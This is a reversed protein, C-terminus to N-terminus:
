SVTFRTFLNFNSFPRDYYQGPAMDGAIYEGPTLRYYWFVSAGKSVMGGLYAGGQVFCDKTPPAMGRTFCINDADLDAQTVGPALKVIELNNLYSGIGLLWGARPLTAPMTLGMPGKGFRVVGAATPHIQAPPTGVVTLVKIRSLHTPVNHSAEYLFYTGANFGTAFSGVAGRTTSAGGVWTVSKVFAAYAAPAASNSATNWRTGADLFQRPTYGAPARVVQVHALPDTTRVQAYYQGATIRTPMTLYRNAVSIYLTRPATPTAANAGVGAVTGIAVSGALALVVASVLVRLRFKSRM